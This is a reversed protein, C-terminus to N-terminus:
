SRAHRIMLMLTHSHSRAIDIPPMARDWHARVDATSLRRATHSPPLQETEGHTSERLEISENQVAMSRSKTHIHSLPLVRYGTGTTPPRAHFHITTSTSAPLM